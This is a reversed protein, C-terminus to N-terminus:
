GAAMLGDAKAKAHTEDLTKWAAAVLEDVESKTIVLPPSCAISDKVARLMVGNEPAIEKFIKGISGPQAFGARSSADPTMQIAGLLGCLRVEGM